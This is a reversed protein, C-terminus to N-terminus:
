GDTGKKFGFIVLAKGIKRPGWWKAVLLGFEEQKKLGGHTVKREKASHSTSRIGHAGVSNLLHIVM